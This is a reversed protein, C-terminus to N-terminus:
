SQFDVIILRQNKKVLLTEVFIQVVSIKNQSKSSHM